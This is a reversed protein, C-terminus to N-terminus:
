EEIWATFSRELLGTDRFSPRREGRKGKLRHSIGKIAAQTPVGPYGLGELERNEIMTRFREQTKSLGTATPDLTAPAGMLAAELASGVSASMDDAVEQGHLEFFHEMIHYKEELLTAVDGTTQVPGYGEGLARKMTEHFRQIENPDAYHQEIVGLHLKVGL